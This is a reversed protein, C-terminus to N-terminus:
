AEGCIGEVHIKDAAFDITGVAWVPRANVWQYEDAATNLSVNATQPFHLRTVMLPKSSRVSILISAGTQECEPSTSATSGGQSVGPQAVMLLSM